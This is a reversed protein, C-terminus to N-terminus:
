LVSPSGTSTTGLTAPTSLHLTVAQGPAFGLDVKWLTRLSRVMLRTGAMLVMAMSIEIIVFM